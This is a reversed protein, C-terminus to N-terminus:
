MQRRTPVARQRHSRTEIGRRGAFVTPLPGPDSASGEGPMPNQRLRTELWKTLIRPDREGLVSAKRSVTAFDAPTLGSLKPVFRPPDGGFARRFAKGIQDATMLHHRLAVNPKSRHLFDGGIRPALAIGSAMLRHDVENGLVLLRNAPDQRAALSVDQSFIPAGRTKMQPLRL